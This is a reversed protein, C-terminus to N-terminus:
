NNMTKRWLTDVFLLLFRKKKVEYMVSVTSVSYFKFSTSPSLNEPFGCMKKNLCFFNKKRLRLM